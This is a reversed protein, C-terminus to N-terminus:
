SILVDSECGVVTSDEVELYRQEPLITEVGVIRLHLLLARISWKGIKPAEMSLNTSTLAQVIKNSAASIM